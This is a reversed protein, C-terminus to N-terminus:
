PYFARSMDLPRDSSLQPNQFNNMEVRDGLQAKKGLLMKTKNIAQVMKRYERARSHLDVYYAHIDHSVLTLLKQYTPHPENSLIRVLAQTMTCTGTADEWTLQSDKSSSLSIVDAKLADEYTFLDNDRCYGTCYMAVPSMCQKERENPSDLWPAPSGPVDTIISLSPQHRASDARMGSDKSGSLVGDISTRAWDFVQKKQRPVPGVRASIQAFMRKNSNWNSNTRRNGKNMWPVYVRNCRFHKLDLLTGSHCSDFVAILSSGQPLPAALNARLEDDKIKKGDSTVIFENKRDEEEVDDTDEQDSHGSYHFFFRDNEEANKILNNIAQLINDRTPQVNCPKDDDILVTIDQPDYNYLKILLDRMAAVDRHPGKLAERTTDKRDKRRKLWKKKKGDKKGDPSRLGSPSMPEAEERIQQIGILLAKLKIKKEVTVPKIEVDVPSSIPQKRRFAAWARPMMKM